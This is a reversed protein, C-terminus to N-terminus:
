KLFEPLFRFSLVALIILVAALIGEFRTVIFVLVGIIAPITQMVLAEILTEVM